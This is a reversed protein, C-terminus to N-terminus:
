SEPGLKSSGVLQGVLYDDTIPLICFREAAGSQDKGVRYGPTWGQGSPPM